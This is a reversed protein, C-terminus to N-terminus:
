PRQWVRIYDVQMTAGAVFEGKPNSTNNMLLGHPGSFPADRTARKVGDVYFDVAGPRWEVGFTHWGSWDGPIWATTGAGGDVASWSNAGPYHTTLGLRGGLIERYDLEGDAPWDYGNTWLAPWNAMAGKQDSPIWARAEVYGYTFEYKGMSSVLSGAYPRTAGNCFIDRRQLELHLLGSAVTANDSDFCDPGDPDVGRTVGAGFWGTTWRTAELTDFDDSFQLRWTGPVPGFPQPESASSVVM